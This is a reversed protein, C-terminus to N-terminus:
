KGICFSCFINHLVDDSTTEGTIEGLSEMALRLDAAVFEYPVSRRISGIADQLKESGARAAWYQRNTTMLVDSEVLGSEGCAAEYIRSKLRDIGEGTKASIGFRKVSDPAMLEVLDFKNYAILTNQHDLGYDSLGSLARTADEGKRADLVLLVVDASRVLDTTRSVGEAEVEDDSKRLGATDILKVQIGGILIVEQLYDRTTGPTPSVISREETLLRNFLSSKGVNPEGAIAVTVGDRLVKGLRFSSILRDLDRACALVRNEIEHVPAVRLDEEESFDLQLELLSCIDLLERKIRGIQKGLM